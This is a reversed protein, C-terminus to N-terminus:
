QKTKRVFELSPFFTQGRYSLHNCNLHLKVGQFIEDASFLLIIYGGILSFCCCSCHHITESNKLGATCSKLMYILTLQMFTRALCTWLIRAAGWCQYNEINKVKTSIQILNQCERVPTATTIFIVDAMIPKGSCFIPLVTDFFVLLGHPLAWSPIVMSVIHFTALAWFSFPSTHICEGGSSPSFVGIRCM